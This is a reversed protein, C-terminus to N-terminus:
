SIIPSPIRIIKLNWRTLAFQIIEKERKEIAKKDWSKYNALEKQVRLNSQKYITKKGTFDKEWFNKNSLKQNWGTITLNGLRNVYKEHIKKKSDNWQDYNRPTQPWIHEIQTKGEFDDWSFNIEENNKKAKEKEYEYFLYKIEHTQIYDYFYQQNLNEKFENNPGYDRITETL